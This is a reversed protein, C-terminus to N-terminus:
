SYIGKMIVPKVDQIISVTRALLEFCEEGATEPSLIADDEIMIDNDNELYFKLWRYQGNLANCIMLLDSTREAPCNTFVIRLAVHTGDDAGDFFFSPRFDNFPVTICSGGNDVDRVDFKLEKAQLTAAFMEACIVM